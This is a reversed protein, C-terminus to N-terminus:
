SSLKWIISIIVKTRFHPCKCQSNARTCITWAVRLGHHPRVLPPEVLEQYVVALVTLRSKGISLIIFTFFKLWDPFSYFIGFPDSVQCSCQGSCRKNYRPDRDEGKIYCEFKEQWFERFWPNRKNTDPKLAHYYEDFNNIPPSYLKISMGGLANKGIDEVVDPRDAWGDSFCTFLFTFM